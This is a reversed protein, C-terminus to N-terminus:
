RLCVLRLFTVSMAEAWVILMDYMVVMCVAYVCAKERENERVCM